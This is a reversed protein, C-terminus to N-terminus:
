KKILSIEETTTQGTCNNKSVAFDKKRWPWPRKKGNKNQRQWYYLTEAIYDTLVEDWFITDNRSRGTIQLCKDFVKKFEKFSTDIKSEQLITFTSDYSNYYHHTVVKNIHKPKIKLSDMLDKVIGEQIDKIYQKFDSEKLYIQKNQNDNLLQETNNQYLKLTKDIRIYAFIGLGIVILLICIKIINEITKM